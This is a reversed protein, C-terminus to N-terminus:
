REAAKILRASLVTIAIRLAALVIPGTGPVKEQFSGRWTLRTGNGDPESLVEARYDHVPAAGAFTYVHRRDPEYELTEERILLPWAGVARIAGVGGGPGAWRDWRSVVILPKGWESWRAGDSELRFLTAPPASSTRTIEFSFTRRPM